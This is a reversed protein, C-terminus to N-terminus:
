NLNIQAHGLGGIRRYQTPSDMALGCWCSKYNLFEVAPKGNSDRVGRNRGPIKYNFVINKKSTLGPDFIQLAM